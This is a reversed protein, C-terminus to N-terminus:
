FNLHVELDMVQKECAFLFHRVKANNQPAIAFNKGRIVSPPSLATDVGHSLLAAKLGGAIMNCLEGVADNVERDQVARGLTEELLLQGVRQALADTLHFYLSGEIGEGGIGIVATVQEGAGLDGSDLPTADLELMTFLVRPVVRRVVDELPFSSDLSPPESSM